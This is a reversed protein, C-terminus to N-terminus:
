DGVEKAKPIVQGARMIDKSVIKFMRLIDLIFVRIEKM